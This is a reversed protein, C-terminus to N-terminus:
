KKVAVQIKGDGNVEMTTEFSKNDEVSVGGTVTWERFTATGLAEAKVEHVSKAAFTTTRNSYNKGDVFINASDGAAIEVTRTYRRYLRSLLYGYLVTDLVAFVYLLEAALKYFTIGVIGLYVYVLLVAFSVSLGKVLPLGKTPLSEYLLGFATAFFLSIFFNVFAFFGPFVSIVDQFCDNVAASSTSNPLTSTSNVEVTSCVTSYYHSIFSLAQSKFVILLLFNFLTLSGVFVVGAVVGAKMGALASGM